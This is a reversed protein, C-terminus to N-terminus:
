VQLAEFLHRVQDTLTWMHRNRGRSGSNNNVSMPKVVEIERLFKLARRVTSDGKNLRLAIRSAEMGMDEAYYLLETIRLNLGRSTDTAVKVVQDMVVNDVADRNLVVALCNALRVYQSTLRTALEVEQEEDDLEKDPRARMYSTLVGLERCRRLVDDPCEVKNIREQVHERLWQVYGATYKMADILRPDSTNEATGDSEQRVRKLANLAARDLIEEELEPDYDTKRDYIICDVFRDGLFSKNLRYLSRTGALIFTIRLGSYSSKKFNKYEARSTGDYFDRMESLTQDRNASNLLTDGDKTIVTKGDMRPILSSDKGKQAGSGRYGSHFGKQISISHVHEKDVSLAECLTSKASGPPGVVRLWLQDGQLKTSAATALMVALTTDLSDTWKLAKKWYERLEVFNDCPTPELLEGTSVSPNEPDVWDEPPSSLMSRVTHIVAPLGRDNILDRLDYGDKRLPDHTGTGWHIISLNATEERCLINCAREMGSYSPPPVMRGSPLNRPHDNDYIFNVDKDKFLPMWTDRFVECGPVAIVNTTAWLSDGVEICRHLGSPSEKYRRLVEYWAMGDWPGECIDVMQKTPDYHQLGFIGHSLTPTSLLRMKGDLETYRYLNNVKGEENYTPVLWDQRLYSMVVGWEELVEVSVGRDEALDQLQDPDTVEDCAQHFHKLFTYVNGKKGCVKCHYQGTAQSIHYKQEKTCFPCTAIADDNGQWTMEVGHFLYPRLKIPADKLKM